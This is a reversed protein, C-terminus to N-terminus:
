PFDTPLYYVCVAEINLFSKLTYNLSVTYTQFHSVLPTSGVYIIRAGYEKGYTRM